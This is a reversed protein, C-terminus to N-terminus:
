DLCVFEGHYKLAAERYAAHAEEVTAFHGLYRQGRDVRIHAKWPKKRNGGQWVVGKPHNIAYGAQNQQNQSATALRLNVLRNDYHDRNIHDVYEPPWYGYQIIWIIHTIPYATGDLSTRGLRSPVVEHCNSKMWKKRTLNGTEPDYSFWARVTEADHKM